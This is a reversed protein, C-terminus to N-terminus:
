EPSTSGRLRRAAAGRLPGRDERPVLLTSEREARRPHREVVPRGEQWGGGGGPRARRSRTGEDVAAAEALDEFPIPCRQPPHRLREEAGGPVRASAHRQGLRPQPDEPRRGRVPPLAHAGGAGG